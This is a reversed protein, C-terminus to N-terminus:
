STSESVPNEFEEGLELEREQLHKKHEQRHAEREAAKKGAKEISAVMAEVVADDVTDLVAVSVAVVAVEVTDDDKLEVSVDVALEDSDDVPDVVAVFVAVVAVDVADDVGAADRPGPAVGALPGPPAAVVARAAGQRRERHHRQPPQVPRYLDHVADRALAPAVHRDDVVDRALGHRVRHPVPAALHGHLAEVLEEGVRLAVGDDARQRADKEVAEARVAVAGRLEHIGRRLPQALRAVVAEHAHGLGLAGGQILKLGIPGHPRFSLAAATQDIHDTGGLLILIIQESLLLQIRKLALQFLEGKIQLRLM